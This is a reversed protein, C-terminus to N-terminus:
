PKKEKLLILVAYLKSFEVAPKVEVFQFFDSKKNVVDSVTGILIGQPYIGNLGSTLIIDKPKIDETKLVYSFKCRNESYGEIIGRVQHRKVVSDVASNADTILLVKSTTHSVNIIKGVVGTPTIVGLGRVVGDRAGKDVILTKFWSSPDRGLIEATLSKYSLKKKFALLRRLRRNELSAEKLVQNESKLKEISERLFTNEKKLDFLYFYDEWVQNAKKICLTTIKLPPGLLMLIFKDLATDRESKVVGRAFLILAAIFLVVLTFVNKKRSLFPMM